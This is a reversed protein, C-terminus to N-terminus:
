QYIKEILHQIEEACKIQDKLNWNGINKDDKIFMSGLQHFYFEINRAYAEKM